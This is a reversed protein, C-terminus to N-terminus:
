DVAVVTVTLTRTESHWASMKKASTPGDADWWVHYGIEITGPGVGTVTFVLKPDEGTTSFTLTDVGPMDAKETAVKVRGTTKITYADNTADGAPVATRTALAPLAQNDYYVVTTASGAVPQVGTPDNPIADISPLAVNSANAIVDLDDVHDQAFLLGFTAAMPHKFVLEHETTARYGVTIPRLNGTVKFQEVNYMQKAPDEMPIPFSVSASTEMDSDEAVVNLNFEDVGDRRNVIDVWVKCTATTATTCTSGDQIVVDDRSSTIKYTLKGAVDEAADPDEFQGSNDAARRVDLLM